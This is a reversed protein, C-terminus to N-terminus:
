REILGAAGLQLLARRNRRIFRGTRYALSDPRAQVPRSELLRRLDDALEQAASYRRGSDLHLAKLVILDLDKSVAHLRELRQAEPLRGRERRLATSPRETTEQNLGLAIERTSLGARRHPFREALLQYLIVGLAYVDSAPSAPKGLLQEPAAYSPTLVMAEGALRTADADDETLAKAIGFDLLKVQGRTSVLVNSPKLDRHVIRRAHAAQVAECVTIMLQLVAATSLNQARAYETIPTGEVYEMALFPRGDDSAGADLVHAINPHDLQALIRRERSFRAVVADTDLGRKLVKIAVRLEFAGDARRAAYVEGMGGRGVLREISWPGLRTGPGLPRGLTEGPLTPNPREFLGRTTQAAGLLAEVEARLSADGECAGDLFEARADEPLAEAELYLDQVQSWRELTM